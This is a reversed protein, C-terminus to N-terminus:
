CPFASRTPSRLAQSTTEILGPSGPVVPVNAERAMSRAPEQRGADGHGRAHPRHLRHQLQPLSRQLPRERGPLRLGSSDGRRQGGRGRQHGPRDESLEARKPPGICYAEDALELYASGRDAESYVAVTEIGMERCARIIRLAIEGRNAILIRKYMNGGDIPVGSREVTADTLRQVQLSVRARNGPDVSPPWCTGSPDV